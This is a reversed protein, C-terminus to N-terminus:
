PSPHYTFNSSKIKEDVMIACIVKGKFLSVNFAFRFIFLIIDFFTTQMLKIQFSLLLHTLLFLTHGVFKLHFLCLWVIGPLDKQAGCTAPLLFPSHATSRSVQRETRSRTCSPMQEEEANRPARKM